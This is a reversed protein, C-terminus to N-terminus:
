ILRIKAAIDAYLISLDIEPSVSNLLLSMVLDTCWEWNPIGDKNTLLPITGDVFGLKSKAWLAM